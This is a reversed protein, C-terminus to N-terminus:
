AKARDFDFQAKAIKIEAYSYQAGLREKLPVLGAEPSAAITSLITSLKSPDILKRAELKGASVAFSLHSYITEVGLGRIEAIKEPSKGELFLELSIDKSAPLKENGAGEGKQEQVPVSTFMKNVEQIVSQIGVNSALGMAVAAAQEIQIRKKEAIQWLHQVDQVYKKSKAKIKFAKIHEQTDSLVPNLLNLFWVAGAQVRESLRAYREKSHENVIMKLTPEFKQATSDLSKLRELQALAFDSAMDKEPIARRVLDKTFELWQDYVETFDFATAVSQEAFVQQSLTLMNDLADPDSEKEAFALIKPDTHISGAGIRSKL